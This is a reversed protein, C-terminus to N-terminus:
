GNRKLKSSVVALAATLGEDKGTKPDDRAEVDPKIGTGTKVGSGGLNRGKPTFYQGETIKLSGGNSLGLVTQFVGKGYTRTGVVTARDRDQLAGTVIESASATNRDVLVALPQTPVTPDGTAKLTDPSVARGKTTVIVGGDLFQSAVGQAQTILGGGNERLDLVFGKAGRALLRELAAHVEASAGNEFNALAVVGVKEGQVTKLSSSVVPVTVRARKITYARERGDRLVRLAVSTGPNGKIAASAADVKKGALRKGAAEVIVDGARLGADAAPSKPYVIGVKLGKPDSQVTIGIGEYANDTADEFHRNAQPDFYDSFRDGLSQVVGAIAANALTKEPIRRYYNEHVRDIAEDVVRTDRDGVLPNRLFSPLADPHGGLVIGVLLTAVLAALPGAYVLVRRM